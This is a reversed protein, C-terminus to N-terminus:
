EWRDWFRRRRLKPIYAAARNDSLASRKRTIPYSRLPLLHSDRQPPSLRPRAGFHGPRGNEPALVAVKGWHDRSTVSSPWAPQRTLPTCPLSRRNPILVWPWRWDPRSYAFSEAR